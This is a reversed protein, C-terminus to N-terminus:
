SPLVAYRKLAEIYRHAVQERERVHATAATAIRSVEEPRQLWQRFIEELAGVDLAQALGGDALLASTEEAFNETHPGVVCTKGLAAPEIVNHGGRPILSGGLFVFGAHRMWWRSEGLTDVVYIEDESRPKRAQTHLSARWGLAHLRKLIDPAREPHRPLLVLLHGGPDLRQWLQALQEEEDAHTSAALVYARSFPRDADVPNEATAYKINGLSVVREPSANQNLFKQRDEDSRSLICRARQLTLQLTHRLLFPPHDTRETLRANILALPIDRQQAAYFFCPWLETEMILLARPQIRRLWRCVVTTHDLPFYVCTLEPMLVHAMRRGTPTTISLFVDHGENQLLHILPAAASVEGVSCCHVGIYGGLDKPLRWAYRQCLYTIGGDKVARM